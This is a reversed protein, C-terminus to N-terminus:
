LESLEKELQKIQVKIEAKRQERREKEEQEKMNHPFNWKWMNYDHIISTQEQPSMSQQLASKTKHKEKDWANLYTNLIEDDFTILLQDDQKIMRLGFLTEMEFLAYMVNIDHDDIVPDTLAMVSVGLATAIQKLLETKPKRVGNEYKQIRNGELGILEGLEAQTLGRSKRIERIRIGVREAQTCDKQLLLQKLTKHNNNM